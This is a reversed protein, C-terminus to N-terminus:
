PLNMLGQLNVGRPCGPVDLIGGQYYYCAPVIQPAVGKASIRLKSLFIMMQGKDMLDLM